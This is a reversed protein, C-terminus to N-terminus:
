FKRSYYWKMAFYLLIIFLDIGLLIIFVLRDFCGTVLVALTLAAIFVSIMAEASKERIKILREDKEQIYRKKLADEKKLIASFMTIRGLVVAESVLLVVLLLGVYKNKLTYEGLLIFVFALLCCYLTGCNIRHRLSNKFAEM